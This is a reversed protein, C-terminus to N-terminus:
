TTGVRSHHPFGHAWSKPLICKKENHKVWHIIKGPLNVCRHMGDWLLPFSCLCHHFLFPMFDMEFSTSPACVITSYPHWYILTLNFQNICNLLPKNGTIWLFMSSYYPGQFGCRSSKRREAKLSPLTKCDVELLGHFFLVLLKQHHKNRKLKLPM